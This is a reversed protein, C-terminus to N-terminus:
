KFVERRKREDQKQIDLKNQALWDRRSEKDELYNM